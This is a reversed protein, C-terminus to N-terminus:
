LKLSQIQICIQMKESGLLLNSLNSSSCTLNFGLKFNYMEEKKRTVKRATLTLQDNKLNRNVNFRQYGDCVAEVSLDIMLRDTVDGATLLTVGQNLIEISEDVFVSKVFAKIIQM